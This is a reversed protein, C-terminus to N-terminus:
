RLLSFFIQLKRPWRLSLFFFKSFGGLLKVLYVWGSWGSWGAEESEKRALDQNRHGLAIVLMVRSKPHFFGVELVLFM